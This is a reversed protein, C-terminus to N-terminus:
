LVFHHRLEGSDLLFFLCRGLHEEVVTLGDLLKRLAYVAAVQLRSCGDGLNREDRWFRSILLLVEYEDKIIRLYDLVRRSLWDLKM